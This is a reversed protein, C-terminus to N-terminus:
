RADREWGNNPRVTGGKTAIIVRDRLESPLTSFAKQCLYDGYGMDAENKCYADATDWLTMGLTAAHSLVRVADELSPRDERLTLPCTGIGIAGVTPGDPGLQRQQM